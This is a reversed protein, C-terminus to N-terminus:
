PSMIEVGLLLDFEFDRREGGGGARAPLCKATAARGVSGLLFSGQSGPGNPCPLIRGERRSRYISNPVINLPPALPQVSGM